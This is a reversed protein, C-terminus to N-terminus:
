GVAKSVGSEVPGFSSVARRIAARTVSSKLLPVIEAMTSTEDFSTEIDVCRGSTRFRTGMTASRVSTARPGRPATSNEGEGSATNVRSSGLYRSNVIKEAISSVSAAKKAACNIAMFLAVSLAPLSISSSVRCIFLARWVAIM